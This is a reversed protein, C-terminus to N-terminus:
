INGSLMFLNGTTIHMNKNGVYQLRSAEIIEKCLTSHRVSGNHKPPSDQPTRERDAGRHATELTWPM